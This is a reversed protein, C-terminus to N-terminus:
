GSIFVTKSLVSQEDCIIILEAGNAALVHQSPIDEMPMLRGDQAKVARSAFMDPHM